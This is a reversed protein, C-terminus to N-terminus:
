HSTAHLPCHVGAVDCRATVPLSFAKPFGARDSQLKGATLALYFMTETERVASEWRHLCM